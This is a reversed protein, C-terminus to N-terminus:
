DTIEYFFGRKLPELGQPTLTLELKHCAYRRGNIIFPRQPDTARDLFQFEHEIRTDITASGQLASGLTLTGPDSTPRLRFPGEDYPVKPAEQSPHIFYFRERWTNRKMYTLGLPCLINDYYQRNEGYEYERFCYSRQDYWAVLMKDKETEAATDDEATSYTAPNIAKDISYQDDGANYSDPSVLIPTFFHGESTPPFDQMDTITEGGGWTDPIDHGNAAVAAPVIPLATVTDRAEPERVLTGYQDLPCLRYLSGDIDVGDTHLWAYPTGDTDDVYLTHSLKRQDETLALAAEHLAERSEYHQVDANEWVEAPLSLQPDETTWDYAVNGASSTKQEADEANDIDATFERVVRQLTVAEDASGYWQSRPTVAVTTGDVTFVVGFSDQVNEILQRITWHPLMRAIDFTARVNPLFIYRLPHEHTKFYSLDPTYGAARIVREIVELLYPQPAIPRINTPGGGRPDSDYKPLWCRSSTGVLDSVQTNVVLEEATSYTPFAVSDTVPWPGRMMFYAESSYKTDHFLSRIYVAMSGATFQKTVHSGDVATGNFRYVLRGEFRDWAKGLDMRDIYRDEGDIAHDFASRGAILQLKAQEQDVSTVLAHGVFTGAETVLQMPLRRAALGARSAHPFNLPGLALRNAPCGALPLTLELTYDGASAFYPNERTLKVSTDAPLTVLNDGLYLLLM